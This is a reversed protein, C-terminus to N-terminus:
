KTLKKRKEHIKRYPIPIAIKWLFDPNFVRRSVASMFTLANREIYGHLYRLEDELIGDKILGIRLEDPLGYKICELITEIRINDFLDDLKKKM